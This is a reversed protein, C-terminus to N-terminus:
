MEYNETPSQGQKELFAVLDVFWRGKQKYVFIVDLDIQILPMGERTRRFRFFAWFAGGILVAFTVIAQVGEAVNKFM